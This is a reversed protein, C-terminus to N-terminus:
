RKPHALLWGIVMEGWGPQVLNPHHPGGHITWLEVSAGAPCGAYTEVRTEAGPLDADVDLMAGTAALKGTCGNRDAWSSVTDHASPGNSGDYAIVEDRDGHVEVVSVLDTPNCQSTVLPVQGALSVIAAIRPALDCALRHAMVAGNSHGAVFVRKPDVNYHAAVDDILAGLYLVDYPPLTSNPVANWGQDGNANPRGDAAVYLVGRAGAVPALQWWSEFQDGTGGFGHLGILLPAPTSASYSAPVRLQYPRQKLLQAASPPGSDVRGACAALLLPACATLALGRRLAIFGRRATSSSSRIM